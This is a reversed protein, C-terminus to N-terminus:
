YTIIDDVYFFYYWYTQGFQPKLASRSYNDDANQRVQGFFDNYRQKTVDSVPLGTIDVQYMQSFLLVAEQLHTPLESAREEDSLSEWWKAFHEWFADRDKRIMNYILSLELVPKEGEVIPLYTNMIASEIVGQDYELRNQHSMLQKVEDIEEKSLPEPPYFTRSLLAAYKEALPKEDNVVSSRYMYRLYEPRMGYEVIEEMGWRYAGNPIGFHYYLARSGILQLYQEDRPADYPASGDPYYFAADALHGTKLLALRTFMVQLRTPTEKGEAAIDLVHQYDHREIAQKMDLIARFNADHKTGMYVGVFVFLLCSLYFYKYQARVQRPHYLAFLLLVIFTLICPIFYIFESSWRYDPLGQTYLSSRLNIIYGMGFLVQPIALVLLLLCIAIAFRWKKGKILELIIILFAACEAYVGLCWYGLTPILVMMLCKWVVHSLRKWCGVLLVGLLVGVPLTFAIAPTKLLYLFYGVQSYNLLLLLSPVWCVSFLDESVRFAWRITYALAVLVAIFLLTGLWPYCFCAQLFSSLYFLFGGVRSLMEKAFVSDFFFPTYDATELLFSQGLCGYLVYVSFVIFVVPIFIHKLLKMGLFEFLPQSLLVLRKM